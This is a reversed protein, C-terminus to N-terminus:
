SPVLAFTLVLIGIILGVSDMLVNWWSLFAVRGSPSVRVVVRDADPPSGWVRFKKREGRVEIVARWMGGDLFGKKAVILRVDLDPSNRSEWYPWLRWASSAVM